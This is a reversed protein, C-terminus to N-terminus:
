GVKRVNTSTGRELDIETAARKRLGRRSASAFVATEGEVLAAIRAANRHVIDHIAAPRKGKTSEKKPVRVIVVSVGYRQSLMRMFELDAYDRINLTVLVSPERAVEECVSEDSVSTTPDIQLRQKVEVMSESAIGRARLHEALTPPVDEDLVIRGPM